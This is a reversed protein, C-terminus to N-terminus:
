CSQSNKLVNKLLFVYVKERVLLYNKFSLSLQYLNICVTIYYVTYSQYLQYADSDSYDDDDHAVAINRHRNIIIMNFFAKIFFVLKCIFDM